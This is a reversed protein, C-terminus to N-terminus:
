PFIGTKLLSTWSVPSYVVARYSTRALFLADNPRQLCRKYRPTPPSFNLLRDLGQLQHANETKAHNLDKCSQFTPHTAAIRMLVGGIRPVNKRRDFTGHRWIPRSGLPLIGVNRRASIALIARVTGRRFIQHLSLVHRFPPRLRQLREEM